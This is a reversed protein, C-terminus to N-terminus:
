NNAMIQVFFKKAAKKKEFLTNHVKDRKRERERESAQEARRPFFSMFFNHEM